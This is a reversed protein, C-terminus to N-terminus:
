VGFAFVGQAAYYLPLGWLRNFFTRKRFQDRAVAVDSLAFAAAAAALRASETSPHASWFGVGGAVMASIVAAYLAGPLRFEGLDRWLWNLVALSGAATMLLGILFAAPDVGASLFAGLYLAHGAAFAAMGALFPRAGGPILLVDGVACCALGALILAGFRTELSGSAVAIALFAASAAPKFLRRLDARDWREAALLGLM